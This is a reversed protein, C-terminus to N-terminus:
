NTTWQLVPEDNAHYLGRIPCGMTATRTQTTFELGVHFRNCFLSLSYTTMAPIILDITYITVSTYYNKGDYGGPIFKMQEMLDNPRKRRRSSETSRESSNIPM